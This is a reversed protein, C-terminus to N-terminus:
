VSLVGSRLPPGAAQSFSAKAFRFFVCTFVEWEVRVYGASRWAELWFGVGKISRRVALLVCPTFTTMIYCYVCVKVETERM